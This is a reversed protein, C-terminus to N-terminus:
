PLPWDTPARSLTDLFSGKLTNWLAYLQDSSLSIGLLGTVFWCSMGIGIGSFLVALVPHRRQRCKVHFTSAFFMMVASFLEWRMMLMSATLTGM